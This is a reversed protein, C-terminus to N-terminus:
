VVHVERGEEDGGRGGDGGKGSWDSLWDGSFDTVKDLARDGWTSTGVSAVVVREVVGTTTGDVVVVTVTTSVGDVPLVAVVENGTLTPCSTGGPLIKM